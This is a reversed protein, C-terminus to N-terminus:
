FTRWNVCLLPVRFIQRVLLKASQKWSSASVLRFQLRRRGKIERGKSRSTSTNPEIRFSLILLLLSSVQNPFKFPLILDMATVSPCFVARVTAFVFFYRSSSRISHEIEDPFFYQCAYQILIFIPSSYTTIALIFIIM